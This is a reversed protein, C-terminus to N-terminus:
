ELNCLETLNADVRFYVPLQKFHAWHVKLFSELYVKPKSGNSPLGFLSLLREIGLAFAGDGHVSTYHSRGNILGPEMIYFGFIYKHLKYAGNLHNTTFAVKIKWCCDSFDINIVKNHLNQRVLILM